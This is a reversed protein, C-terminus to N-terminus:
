TTGDLGLLELSEIMHASLPAHVELLSGNGCPHPLRIDRAHLHMCRPLTMGEIFAEAGGYKGDGLIPTGLGACHARLQHTRGTIPQLELLAAKKGAHDLTRYLTVARQGEKPDIRVREGGQGSTGPGTGKTLAAEIRGEAPRPLGVVIAWYTKEADKGRFHAALSRAAAANRALLLVGSTDKDLRHVLRPRESAGFRLHDLLGDLHRDLKTGGQVALGAPKNIALVWDDKYLVSAQLDAIARQDAKSIPRPAERVPPAAERTPYNVELPPIRIVQGPELRTSNKARKGDVRIQGTRLLRALKGFPLNPYHQKFWRDLRQDGDGAAVEKNEVGSM